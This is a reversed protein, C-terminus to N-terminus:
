NDTGLKLKLFSRGICGILDSPMMAEESYLAAAMDGALGHLFVALKAAEQPRYSQALMATVMGTLVDGSGGKAMGANGSTNFFVNGDPCFIGTYHGKLVVIIQYRMANARALKLRQADEASPGFLRDFEKPHPTLISNQPIKELLKKDTSIINLADADLVMPSSSAKLLKKLMDQTPESSGIGPGAGIAKYSKLGPPLRTLMRRSGSDISVMAEPLATQMIAYGCAPLHTTLLGAGSTLCARAAMVAAGIKGYSGALLLAHGFTGKNSFPDRSKYISRAVALDVTTYPEAFGKVFSAIDKM